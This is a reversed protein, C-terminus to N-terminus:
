PYVEIVSHIGVLSVLKYARFGAELIIKEWGREDREVGDIHMMHVDYLVQTEKNSAFAPGAGMVADIIIVKGGAGGGGAPIAEKCKRLVKVCNDDGWCHLVWKLLVADAKPIFVFMDGAIFEVATVGDACAQSVVRPLDLVSCKVHPFAAAIAVSVAGHGGGVDVLSSVGGFIDCGAAERLIIEMTTPSAAVMASNYLANHDANKRTMEYVSCGHAMKFFTTSSAGAGGAQEDAKLWAHMDFFTPVTLPNVLFRILPAMSGLKNSDVVLRSMPTLQYAVAEGGNGPANATAGTAASSAAFVGSVTLLNMLRHVHLKRSACVGTGAIIESLTACGGHLHIANPIGLDVACKLAMSKVFGLSHHFLELQARSLDESSMADM